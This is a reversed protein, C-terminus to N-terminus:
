FAKSRISSHVRLSAVPRPAPEKEDRYSSFKTFEQTDSAKM